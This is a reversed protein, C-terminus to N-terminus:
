IYINKLYKKVSKKVFNNIRIAAADVKEQSVNKM